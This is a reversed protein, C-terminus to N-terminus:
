EYRLAVMPDIRAARRAPLYGALLAVGALFLSVSVFTPMDLPKIQFLFTRLVRTFAAAGALGLALGLGVLWLAQRVALQVINVRQAGLAARIGFERVRQAVSHSVVGYVGVAALLLGVGSFLSALITQFREPV